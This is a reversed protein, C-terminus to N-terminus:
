YKHPNKWSVPDVDAKTSDLNQGTQFHSIEDVGSLCLYVPRSLYKSQCFNSKIFEKSPTQQKGLLATIEKYAGTNKLTFPVSSVYQSIPRSPKLLGRGRGGSRAPPYSCWMRVMVQLIDASNFIFFFCFVSLDMELRLWSCLKKFWM